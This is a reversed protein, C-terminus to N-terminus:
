WIIMNKFSALIIKGGGIITTLHFYNSNFDGEEMWKEKTKEKWLFEEKKPFSDLEVQFNKEQM